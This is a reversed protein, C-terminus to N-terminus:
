TPVGWAMRLNEADVRENYADHVDKSCMSRATTATRLLM